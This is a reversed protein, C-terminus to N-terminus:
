NYLYPGKFNYILRWFHRSTRGHRGREPQIQWRYGTLPTKYISFGQFLYTPNIQVPSFVSSNKLITNFYPPYFHYLKSFIKSSAETKLVKLFSPLRM